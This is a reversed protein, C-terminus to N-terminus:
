SAPNGRGAAEALQVKVEGAIKKRQDPSMNALAQEVASSLVDYAQVAQFRDQPSITVKQLYRSVEKLRAEETPSLSKPNRSVLETYEHLYKDTEPDVQASDFGFLPSTLVQDARLGRTAVNPVEIRVKGDERVAKFIQEETMTGVIMPSHTTALVQLKPFLRRVTPALLRQWSPHMHADIEDVLVLIPGEEPNNLAAHVEYARQLMVGVWCLVSATGQSVSELPVRTGDARIWIQKKADIDSFQIKADPTVADLVEFFRNFLRDATSAETGRGSSATVKLDILWARFDTLRTDPTNNMLPALDAASPRTPPGRKPPPGFTMARLAPFGIVLWNGLRLPSLSPSRLHVADDIDRSLEVIYPTPGEGVYVAIKGGSAGSRLLRSVAGEPAEQGSLAAAIARLIISKGVGNDGLLVNWGDSLTLELSEFPGINEM